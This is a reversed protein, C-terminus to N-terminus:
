IGRKGCLEEVWSAKDYEDFHNSIVGDFAGSSDEGMGCGNTADFGYEKQFHEAAFAWALTGVMLFMKESHLRAITERIGAIVPTDKLIQVMDARRRGRYHGADKEAFERATMEGAVYRRDWEVIDEMFGLARGLHADATGIVLTGDLDFCVTRIRM